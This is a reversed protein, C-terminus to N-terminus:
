KSKVQKLSNKVREAFVGRAAGLVEIEARKQNLQLDVFKLANIAERTPIDLTSEDYKVGDIEIM